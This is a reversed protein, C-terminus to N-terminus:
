VQGNMVYNFFIEGINNKVVEKNNGRQRAQKIARILKDLRKLLLSKELPTIFGCWKDTIYMGINENEEWKEIQAPHHETAEYLIKHRFTKATKYKKEPHTMKFINEGKMNDNEWAIGPPLTPIADYLNRVNKLKSELGLLFTTPMNTAIVIGDIIIDAFAQQNTLEKQLVADFYKIIHKNTYDLKDNVTTTIEQYERPTEIQDENFNELHKEYGFFLHPKKSFANQTETLMTKYINELDSEVALLEHLKSM